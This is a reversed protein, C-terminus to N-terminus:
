KWEYITHEGKNDLRIVATAEKIPNISTSCKFFAINENEQLEHNCRHNLLPSKNNSNIILRAYYTRNVYSEYTEYSFYKGCFPCKYNIFAKHKKLEEKELREQEKMEPTPIDFLYYLLTDLIKM